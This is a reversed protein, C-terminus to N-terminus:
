RSYNAKTMAKNPSVVIRNTKLLSVRSTTSVTRTRFVGKFSSRNLCLCDQYEALKVRRLTIISGRWGQKRSTAVADRARGLWLGRPISPRVCQTTPLGRWWWRTWANGKFNRIRIHKIEPTLHKIQTCHTIAKLSLSTKPQTKAPM